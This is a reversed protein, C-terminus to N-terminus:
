VLEQHCRDPEFVHEDAPECHFGLLSAQRAIPAPAPAGANPTDCDPLTGAANWVAGADWTVASGDPRENAEFCNNAGGGDWLIDVPDDEVPELDPAEPTTVLRDAQDDDGANALTNDVVRNLSPEAFLFSMAVGARDHGTITNETVLNNSGGAIVVGLGPPVHVFGSFHWQQSATANNNDEVVNDVVALNTQPLPEQPLVNPVIGAANDRWVSDRITVHSAATGSYGILNGEAVLNELVCECALTEGIYFGSDRHETAYSDQIWGVESRIAYIGYPGNAIAAVDEVYFGVVGDYYVGNGGFHQVTLQRVTVGDARIEIGNDAIGEGELVTVNEGAGELTLDSTTVDVAEAYTGAQISVTDGPEAADVAAQISGYSCGATDDPSPCVFLTSSGSTAAGALTTTLLLAGLVLATPRARM